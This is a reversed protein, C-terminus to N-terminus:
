PYVGTIRILGFGTHLNGGEEYAKTGLVYVKVGRCPIDTMGTLDLTRDGAGVWTDDFWEDLITFESMDSAIGKIRLRRPNNAETWSTPMVQRPKMYVQTPVMLPMGADIDEDRLWWGVWVTEM